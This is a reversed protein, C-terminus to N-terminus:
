GETPGESAILRAAEEVSNVRSGLAELFEQAESLTWIASRRYGLRQVTSAQAPGPVFWLIRGYLKVFHV